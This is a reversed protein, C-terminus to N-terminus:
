KEVVLVNAKEFEDRLSETVKVKTGAAYFNQGHTVNQNLVVDVTKEDQKGAM